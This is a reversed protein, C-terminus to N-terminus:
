FIIFLPSSSNILYAIALLCFCIYVFIYGYFLLFTIQSCGDWAILVKLKWCRTHDCSLFFPWTCNSPNLHIIYENFSLCASYLQVHGYKKDHIRVLHQVNFTNINILYDMGIFLCCM